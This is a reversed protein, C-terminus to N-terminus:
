FEINSNVGLRGCKWEISCVGNDPRKRGSMPRSEIWARMARICLTQFRQKEIRWQGLGIFDGLLSQETPDPQGWAIVPNFTVLLMYLWSFSWGAVRGVFVAWGHLSTMRIGYILAIFMWINSLSGIAVVLYGIIEACRMGRPPKSRSEEIHAHPHLFLYYLVHWMIMGPITAVVLTFVVPHRLETLPGHDDTVLLTKLHVTIVSAGIAGMEMAFRKLKSLCHSPDCACIGHLPHNNASYYCLDWWWGPPCLFSSEDDPGFQCFHRAHTRLKPSSMMPASECDNDLGGFHVEFSKGAAQCLIDPYQVHWWPQGRGFFARSQMLAERLFYQLHLLSLVQLFFVWDKCDMSDSGDSIFLDFCEEVIRWSLMGHVYSPLSRLHARHAEIELFYYFEDRTLRDDIRRRGRASCGAEIKKLLEDQEQATMSFKGNWSEDSLACLVLTCAPDFEPPDTDVAYLTPVCRGPTQLTLPIPGPSFIAM